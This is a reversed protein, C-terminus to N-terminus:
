NEEVYGCITEENFRKAEENGFIMKVEPINAIEIIDKELIEVFKQMADEGTYTRLKQSYVNDDFCKIYYSFSIPEHKQYKQTYKKEPDSECSQIPKLLSETDAYIIFPVRQSKWLEKFYLGSGKEPMNIKICENTTCHEEHAKLSKETQFHNM